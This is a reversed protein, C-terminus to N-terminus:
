HRYPNARADIEEHRAAEIAADHYWGSGASTEVPKAATKKEFLRVSGAGFAEVEDRHDVIGHLDSHLNDM